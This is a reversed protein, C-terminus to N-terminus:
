LCQLGRFFNVSALRWMTIPTNAMGLWTLVFPLMSGIVAGTNILFGQISYGNNRQEDCVMDGVLARFPQMTVNFSTDMFLLMFAGFFLPPVLCAFFESNPMFFMTLASFSLIPYKKMM